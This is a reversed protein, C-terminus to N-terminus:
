RQKRSPVQGVPNESASGLAAALAARMVELPPELGTWLTFSRAGQHLLMGKGDATAHGAAAAEQLFPTTRYIMDYVACREPLVAVPLPLADEAHLGLSTAQVLVDVERLANSIVDPDDQLPLCTTHCAPAVQEIKTALTQARALTRNLLILREVGRRALHVATATAAGGCGAFAVSLGAPHLQFAEHLAMELGHGDTSYGKLVNDRNVVTNVSLTASVSEDLEDVLGAMAQKHPVTVNWGAFHERRLDKVTQALKERPTPIREYTAPIGAAGFAAEQMAPSVSHQVPWGLLAYRDTRM